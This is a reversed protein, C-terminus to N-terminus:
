RRRDSTLHLGTMTVKNYVLQIMSTCPYMMGWRDGIRSLECVRGRSVMFRKVSKGGIGM